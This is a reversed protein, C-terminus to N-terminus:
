LYVERRAHMLLLLRSVYTPMALMIPTATAYYRSPLLPPTACPSAFHGLLHSLRPTAYRPTAAASFEAHRRRLTADGLPTAHSAAFIPPTCAYPSFM